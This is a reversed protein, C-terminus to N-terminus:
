AGALADRVAGRVHAVHERHIDMHVAARLRYQSIIKFRIGAPAVAAALGAADLAAERTEFYFLNTEVRDQAIVIGPLEALAQALEIALANDERLREVNNELAYVGAAALIGAKHMVGGFLYKARRAAVVFDRGGALVGGSPCGLGKSLDIWASDFQACYRAASIGTAACANLLRAGDLHTVLGRSRATACADDLAQLPWVSGGSRNHTNELSLVRAVEPPGLEDVGRVVEAPAIVGSAGRLTRLPPRGAIASGAYGSYVPHSDEHVLVEEGPGCHVAYAAINCMTGSPLFVAEPKGLLEAVREELARVTPDEGHEEDGVAAQCMFRRMEIGPHAANDSLLDIEWRTV